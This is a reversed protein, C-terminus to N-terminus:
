NYYVMFLLCPMIWYVLINFDACRDDSDVAVGVWDIDYICYWKTILLMERSAKWVLAGLCYTVHTWAPLRIYFELSGVRWGIDTPNLQINSIYIYYGCMFENPFSKLAYSFYTKLKEFNQSSSLILSLLSRFWLNISYPFGATLLHLRLNTLNYARM